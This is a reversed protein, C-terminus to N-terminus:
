DFEFFHKRQCLKEYYIIVAREKYFTRWHKGKPKPWDECTERLDTNFPWKEGWLRTRLKILRDAVNSRDTGNQSEYSPKVCHRCAFIGAHYLVCCRRSCAPCVLWTREGFTLATKTFYIYYSHGSTNSILLCEELRTVKLKLVSENALSWNFDVKTDILHLSYEALLQLTLQPYQDTRLRNRKHSYYNAM